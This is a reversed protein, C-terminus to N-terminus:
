YYHRRRRRGFFEQLLLIDILDKFPGRRRRRRDFMRFDRDFMGYQNTESENSESVKKECDRMYDAMDPYMRHVDDCISDTMNEIMQQTPMLTGFTDMQDCVMIIYPQLRYFVEPYVIQYAMTGMMNPASEMPKKENQVLSNLGSTSNISMGNANNNNDM